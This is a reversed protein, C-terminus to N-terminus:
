VHATAPEAPASTADFLARLGGAAESGLTSVVQEHAATWVPLAEAIMREGAPTLRALRSRADGPAPALRVKRDTTRGTLRLAMTVTLRNANRQAHDSKTKAVVSSPPPVRWGMVSPM